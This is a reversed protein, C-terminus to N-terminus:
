TIYARKLVERTQEWRRALYRLAADTEIAVENALDDIETSLLKLAELKESTDFIKRSGDPVELTRADAHNHAYFDLHRQTEALIALENITGVRLASLNAHWMMAAIDFSSIKILTGEKEADAKVNKCLRIAKKLGDIAIADREGIRQIHLFPMNHLSENNKTDLIRVGRDYSKGHMQYDATDHWHAPIVDIPRRLSGGALKIAKAGSVDVDVAPYKEVLIEEAHQRLKKLASIPTYTVFFQYGGTQAKIGSPDYTHFAIDLTLLDVDSAGRIHINCPVSGQIKFDVLIGKATLGIKLQKGVREAEELGIATYEPGVEQM